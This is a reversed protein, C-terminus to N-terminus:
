IKTLINSLIERLKTQDAGVISHTDQPAYIPWGGAAFIDARHLESTMGSPVIVLVCHSIRPETQQLIENQTKIAKIIDKHIKEEWVLIYSSM